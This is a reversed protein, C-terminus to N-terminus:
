KALKWSLLSVTIQLNHPIFLSSKHFIGVWESRLVRQLHYQPLVQRSLQCAKGPPCDCGLNRWYPVPVRYNHMRWPPDTAQGPSPELIEEPRSVM